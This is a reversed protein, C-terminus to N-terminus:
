SEDLMHGNPTRLIPHLLLDDKRKVTIGFVETMDVEEAKLGAPLEWDFHFLLSALAIEINAQAFTIGPCIRRGAGFPMYEFEPGKFNSACGGEFREPIFSDSDEWFKPDRSIAWLNTVVITGYPVDYGQVKQDKQLCVRTLLTNSPHLRLTEKIVARLYQLGGLHEEEVREHGALVRRTEQQAKRMVRPNAILEAMAWQLTLAQTDVAAGFVDQM